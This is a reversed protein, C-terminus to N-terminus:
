NCLKEIKQIPKDLEIKEPYGLEIYTKNRKDIAEELTDFIGLYKWQKECRIKVQYRKQTSHWSIGYYGTGEDRKLKPGLIPKVEPLVGNDLMGHQARINKAAQDADELNLYSGGDIRKNGVSVYVQYHGYRYRVNRCKTTSKKNLKLNSSNERSTAIRLQSKRADNLDHLLHDVIQGKKAKMVHRHVLHLRNNRWFSPYGMTQVTITVDKLDEYDEPDLKISGIIINDKKFGKHIPLERYDM